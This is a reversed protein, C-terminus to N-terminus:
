PLADAEAEPLLRCGERPSIWAATQVRGTGRVTVRKRSTDERLASIPIYQESYGQCYGESYGMVFRCSCYEKATFSSVAGQFVSLEERNAIAWGGAVILVLLILGGVALLIRKLVKKM